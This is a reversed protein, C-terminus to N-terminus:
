GTKGAWTRSSTASCHGSGAAITEPPGPVTARWLALLSGLAVMAWFAASRCALQHERRIIAASARLEPWTM